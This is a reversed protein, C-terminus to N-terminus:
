GNDKINLKKIPGPTSGSSAPNKKTCEFCSAVDRESALKLKHTKCLQVGLTQEQTTDYLRFTWHDIWLWSRSGVMDYNRDPSEISDADYEFLWFLGFLLGFYNFIFVRELEYFVQVLERLVVDARRVSQLFGHVDIGRKRHQQLFMQTEIPLSDWKRSNLFIQVEDIVLKIGPYGEPVRLRPIEDMLMDGAIYRYNKAWRPANAPFKMEINSVVFYGRRCFKEVLRVAYLTKGM